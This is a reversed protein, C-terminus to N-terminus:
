YCALSDAMYGIMAASLKMWKDVINLLKQQKDGATEEM